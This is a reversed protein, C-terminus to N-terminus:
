IQLKQKSKIPEYQDLWGKALLWTAPHPIFEGNNKLWKETKIAEAIKSMITTFLADDPKVRIWEKEANGKSRKLPYATWFEEFHSDPKAQPPREKKPNPNIGSNNLSPMEVERLSPSKTNNQEQYQEQYQSRTGRTPGGIPGRRSPDRKGTPKTLGTRDWFLRNLGLMDGEALPNLLGAFLWTPSHNLKELLYDRLVVFQSSRPFTECSTIWGKLNLWSEPQNYDPLLYNKLIILHKDRLIMEREMLTSLAADIHETSLSLMEALIIPHVLGAGMPTIAPHILLGLWVLKESSTLSRFKEDDLTGKSIQSYRAM